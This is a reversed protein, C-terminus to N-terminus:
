SSLTINNFMRFSLLLIIIENRIPKAKAIIKNFDGIDVIKKGSVVLGGMEFYEFSNEPNEKRGDDVFHFIRGKLIM